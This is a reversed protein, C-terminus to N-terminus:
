TKPDCLGRPVCHVQETRCKQGAVVVERLMGLGLTSAKALSASIAKQCKQSM